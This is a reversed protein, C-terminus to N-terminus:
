IWSKLIAIRAEFKLNKDIVVTLIYIYLIYIHPDRSRIGSM